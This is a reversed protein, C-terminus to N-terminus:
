RVKSKKYFHRNPNLKTPVCYWNEVAVNKRITGLRNQIWCKLKKGIQCIWWIAIQSDSWCFVENVKVGGEVAKIIM